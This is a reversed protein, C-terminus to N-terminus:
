ERRLSYGQNRITAIAFGHNELNLRSRLRHIHVELAKGQNRRFIFNLDERLLTKGLNQFLVTALEFELLSAPIRTPGLFIEKTAGILKYPGCRIEDHIPLSKFPLIRETLRSLRTFLSIISEDSMALESLVPDLESFHDVDDSNMVALILTKYKTQIRNAWPIANSSDRGPALIMLEPSLM